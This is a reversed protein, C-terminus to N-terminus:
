GFDGVDDDAATRIPAASGKAAIDRLLATLPDTIGLDVKAKMLGLKRAIHELTKQRDAM